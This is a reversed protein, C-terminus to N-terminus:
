YQDTQFVTINEVSKRFKGNASRHKGIIACLSLPGWISPAGEIEPTADHKQLFMIPSQLRESGGKRLLHISTRIFHHCARNYM